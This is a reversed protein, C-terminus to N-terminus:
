FKGSGELYNEDVMKPHNSIQRLRTLGQLVIISTKEVGEKEIGEFIANRIGSKEEDYFKKQEETMNCYIVEDSIEPLDNAVEEKTRRLIFPNILKKLKKSRIEDNKKEIPMVYEKRFFNLSGLLGKNIFNMQSWLDTLSNEIPTGTLVLRYDSNLIQMAKYLKSSPNKILQSEDLIAYHFHYNSIIEIDQRITHYSSIIIDYLHFNKLFGTRQSGIYAMSKMSPAFRKLENKWNHVLSAPVIILSTLVREEVSFLDVQNPVLNESGSLSQTEKSKLLLSIAQLTKGLGMDDALCGGLGNQQLYKLWTYGELQYPRLEAALKEPVLAPTLREKRNLMELKDFDLSKIGKEAKELISFHQKHLLIKDKKTTAFTFLDKFRSFWEGPIIFVSGDELVFERRMELIHKRFHFFPISYKGISINAKIDFWDNDLSNSIKLEIAGTYYIDGDPQVLEAGSELLESTNNNVWEILQYLQEEYSLERINKVEYNAQDFSILGLNTLLDHYESEFEMDRSFKEYRFRNKETYFDVYVQQETNALIKREDYQFRLLIVANNRIGKEICLLVKRKPSILNIEFGEAIVDQHMVLNKLFVKFYQKEYKQPIDIVDKIFFPKLKKAEIDPIFHIQNNIRLIAPSNCIIETLQDKIVVDKGNLTLKLSYRSGEKEKQFSFVPITNDPLVELFDEEFINDRTKERLFIEINSRRLIEFIRGLRKNIYPRIFGDISEPKVKALFEKINKEKSYYKFLNQDSYEDIIKVIEKETHSLAKFALDDKTPFITHGPSYFSKGSNRLSLPIILLGWHRHEYLGLAFIIEQM